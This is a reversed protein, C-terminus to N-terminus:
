EDSYFHSATEICFRLFDPYYYYHVTIMREDDGQASVHYM